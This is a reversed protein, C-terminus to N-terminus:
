RKYLEIWIGGAEYRQLLQNTTRITKLDGKIDNFINSVLYYKASPDGMYTMREPIGNLDIIELPATNPFATAIKHIPINQSFIYANMKKRLRYYPLHRLTTDWSTSIKPPYKWTNGSAFIGFSLLFIYLWKPYGQKKLLFIAQMFWLDGAIFIPMLYRMGNLGRYLLFTPLLFLSLSGILRIWRGSFEKHWLGKSRLWIAGLLIWIFIRGMDMLRWILVALNKFFGKFDVWQFSDAWPSDQHYGIWHNHLAHAILFLGGILIGPIFDLIQRLGKRFGVELILFLGLAALTMMGRLSIMALGMAGIIISVDRGGQKRLIGYLVMLFFCTLAVDPSVLTAQALYVPDALLFLGFLLGAHRNNTVSLGIKGAYVMAGFLFPWM